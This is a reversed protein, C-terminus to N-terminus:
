KYKPLGLSSRIFADTFLALKIKGIVILTDVLKFETKRLLFKFVIHGARGTGLPPGTELLTFFGILLECSLHAMSLAPSTWM